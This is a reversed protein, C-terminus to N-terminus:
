SIKGKEWKLDPEVELAEERLYSHRYFDADLIEGNWVLIDLDLTLPGYRTESSRKRGLQNEIEKLSARFIGVDLETEVGFAQDLFNPQNLNGIPATELRKSVAFVRYKVKLLDEAKKLNEAPDINSGAGVIARNMKM